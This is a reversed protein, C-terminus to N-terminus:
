RCPDDPDVPITVGDAAADTNAADAPKDSYSDALNVFAALATQFPQPYPNAVDNTM